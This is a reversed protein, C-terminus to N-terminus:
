VEEAEKIAQQLDGECEIFARHYGEDHNTILHLATKCADKFDDRQKLTEPANAILQAYNESEKLERKYRADQAPYRSVEMMFCIFGSKNRIGYAKGNRFVVELKKM